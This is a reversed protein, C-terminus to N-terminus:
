WVMPVRIILQPVFANQAWFTPFHHLCLLKSSPVVILLLPQPFVLSQSGDQSLPVPLPRQLSIQCHYPKPSRTFRNICTLLYCFGASIPFPGVLDLHIHDSRADPTAFTGIAATHRTVKAKQCHTCSRTWQHVDKNIGPWVFRETLLKQTARIGPHSLNHLSAFVAPHLSSPIYPRPTSTTVDCLITGSSFPLPFDQLHLSSSAHLSTLEPDNHQAEALLNVDIMTPISLAHIDVRSLADAVPNQKGHIHRIDTTFQSIFDLRRTARPSYRDPSSSLAHTLPKHDTEVYFTRAELYHRFHRISLYIALLERGFTSYKVESPQLRKSFPAIPHWIGIVNKSFFVGSLLTLHM